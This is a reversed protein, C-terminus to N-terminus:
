GPLSDIVQKMTGVADHLPTIVQTLDQSASIGSLNPLSISQGAIGAVITVMDLIPQLPELSKMLNQTATEANKKACILSAELVPNGQAADLNITAQFKLISDLQSLFCILFNIILSLIGKIMIIIQPIAFAPICGSLEAIADILAPVANGIKVPNLSPVADVFDKLKGIVNLMKLLCAMSALLPSLQVMLSFVLKCDTPSGQSFDLFGRIEAGGLLKISPIEPIKPIEICPLSIGNSM